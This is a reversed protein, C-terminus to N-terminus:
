SNDAEMREGLLEERADQVAAFSEEGGGHDPHVEKVRERYAREIESVTADPSVDLVDYADRESAEEGTPLRLNSFEAAGTTVPRKEMKRKERIYLGVTRVNDRLRTYRDCGVAFQDGDLSWRVVVASDDPEPADAYLYNPKDSRHDGNTSLRWDDVDLKRMEDEIDRIAERRSVEFSRNRSRSRAPTRDWDAPWNLGTM